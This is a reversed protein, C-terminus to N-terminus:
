YHKLVVSGTWLNCSHNTKCTVTIKLFSQTSPDVRHINHIIFKVPCPSATSRGTTKSARLYIMCCPCSLTLTKKRWLINSNQLTKLLGHVSRASLSFPPINQKQQYCPEYLDYFGPFDLFKLHSSGTSWGVKFSEPMGVKVKITLKVCLISLM